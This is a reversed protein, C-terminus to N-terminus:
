PAPRLLRRRLDDHPGWDQARLEEQSVFFYTARPRDALGWARVRREGSDLCAPCAYCEDTTAERHEPCVLTV